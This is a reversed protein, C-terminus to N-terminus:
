IKWVNCCLILNLDIRITKSNKVGAASIQIIEKFFYIIVEHFSKEQLM